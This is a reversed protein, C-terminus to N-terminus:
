GSAGINRIRDIHSCYIHAYLRFLRKYIAKVVSMYNRPFKVNEEIPFITEDTINGDIESMMLDIYTPAPIRTPKKYLASDDKWLYEAKGAAMTPCSQPTCYQVVTGYILSAANYFQVTNVAIWENLDEGPPCKVANELDGGGLTARMTAHVTKMM